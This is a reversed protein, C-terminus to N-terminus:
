VCHQVESRKKTLPKATQVVKTRGHTFFWLKQVVMVSVGVYLFVGGRAVDGVAEAATRSSDVAPKPTVRTSAVNHGINPKSPNKKRRPPNLETVKNVLARSLSKKGLVSSTRRRRQRRGNSDTAWSPVVHTSAMNHTVGPVCLERFSTSYPSSQAVFHAGDSFLSLSPASVM